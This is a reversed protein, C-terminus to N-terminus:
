NKFFNWSLSENIFVFEVETKFLQMVFNCHKWIKAINKFTCM